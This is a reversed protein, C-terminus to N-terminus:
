LLVFFVVAGTESPLLVLVSIWRARQLGWTQRQPESMPNLNLNLTMLIYLYAGTRTSDVMRWGDNRMSGTGPTDSM